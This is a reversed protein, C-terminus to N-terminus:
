GRVGVACIRDNLDDRLSAVARWYVNVLVFILMEKDQFAGRADRIAVFRKVGCRAFGDSEAPTDRV